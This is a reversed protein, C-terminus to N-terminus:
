HRTTQANICCHEWWVFDRLRHQHVYVTVSIKKSNSCCLGRIQAFFFRTKIQEKCRLYHFRSFSLNVERIGIQQNLRHLASFSSIWKKGEGWSVISLEWTSPSSLFHCIQLQLRPRPPHFRKQSAWGVVKL